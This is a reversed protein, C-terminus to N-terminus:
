NLDLERAFQIDGVPNLKMILANQNTPDGNYYYSGVVFLEGTTPDEAIAKGICFNNLTNSFGPDFHYMKSWVPNMAADFKMVIVKSHSTGKSTGCAIFYGPDSQSAIVCNFEDAGGFDFRYKNTAAGGSTIKTVLADAGGPVTSGTISNSAVLGVAIYGGTGLGNDIECISHGASHLWATSGNKAFAYGYNQNVTSGTKTTKIFRLEDSQATADYMHASITYGVGVNSYKDLDGATYNQRTCLGDVLVEPRYNARNAAAVDYNFYSQFYQANALTSQLVIFVLHIKKM